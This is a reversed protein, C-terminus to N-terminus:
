RPRRGHAPAVTPAQGLLPRAGDLVTASLVCLALKITVQDSGGLGAPGLQLREGCFQGFGSLRGDRAPTSFDVMVQRQDRADDGLGLAPYEIALRHRGALLQDAQELRMGVDDDLAAALNLVAVLQVQRGLLLPSTRSTTM